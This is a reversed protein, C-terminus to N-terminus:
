AGNSLLNINESYAKLGADIQSFFTLVGHDGQAGQKLTAFESMQGKILETVEQSQQTQIVVEDDFPQIKGLLEGFVDEKTREGRYVAFLATRTEGGQLCTTM